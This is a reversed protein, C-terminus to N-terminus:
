FVRQHSAVTWHFTPSKWDFIFICWKVFRGFRDFQCCNTPGKQQRSIKCRKASPICCDLPFSAKELRSYSNEMQRISRISRIAFTQQPRRSRRYKGLDRQHSAVTWHFAPCKLHFIVIEMQCISRISRISLLKHLGEVVSINKQTECIFHLLGISLQVKGISYVFEGNSLDISDILNNHGM